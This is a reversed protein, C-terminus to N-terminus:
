FVLMPVIMTPRDQLLDRGLDMPQAQLWQKPRNIKTQLPHFPLLWVPHNYAALAAMSCPGHFVVPRHRKTLLARFAIRGVEHFLLTDYQCLHETALVMLASIRCFPWHFKGDLLERLYQRNLSYLYPEM